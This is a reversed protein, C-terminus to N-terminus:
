PLEERRRFGWALIGIGGALGLLALSKPYCTTYYVGSEGRQLPEAPDYAMEYDAVLRKVNLLHITPLGRASYQQILGDKEGVTEVAYPAILGWGVDKEGLGTTTLNGGVGVFCQIPGEHAYVAMRRAINEQFDPEKMIDAGYGRLRELIEDLCDPDMDYGCDDSGGPTVLAPPTELLGDRYLQLVMDPFTLEPQNAGFTSAGVSAIYVCHVGMTQCAALVALNLGPFSGSFGAGITDGTRVGARTLLEVMLAAMDPDAATQKAEVAGNTTTILTYPEGILGTGHIDEPSIELGCALKYDRIAEMWHEMRAAAQLKIDRDPAPQRSRCLVTGTLCLCLWVAAVVLAALRKRDIRM